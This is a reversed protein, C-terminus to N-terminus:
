ILKDGALKDIIINLDSNEIVITRQNDCGCMEKLRKIFEKVDKKFFIIEGGDFTCNGKVSAGLKSLNFEKTQTGM